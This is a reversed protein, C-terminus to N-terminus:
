QLKGKRVLQRVSKIIREKMDQPMNIGNAATKLKKLDM